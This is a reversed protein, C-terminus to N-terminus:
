SGSQDAVTQVRELADALSIDGTVVLQLQKKFESSVAPPWGQQPTPGVTSDQITRVIEQVVPTPNSTPDVDSSTPIWGMDVYMADAAEGGTLSEIFAAALEEKATTKSIGWVLAPTAAIYNPADSAVGVSQIVGINDNGIAEALPAGNTAISIIMGADGDKFQAEYDTLPISQMGDTFYGRGVMDIYTSMVDETTADTFDLPAEPDFPVPEAFSPWLYSYMWGNIEGEANGGAIATYGAAKIADAAEYLEDLTKPAVDPDLGAEAFIEKNYYIVNTQLGTPLGYIEGGLTAADLGSIADLSEQPVVGDLPLLGDTLALVGTKYPQLLFVDPATGSRIASQILQTYTATDSPQEVRKITVGPNAAEFAADAAEAATKWAPWAAILYDWVVLEEKTADGEDGGAPSACGALGVVAVAILAAARRRITTKM